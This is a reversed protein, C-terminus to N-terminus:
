GDQSQGCRGSGVRSPALLPILAVGREEPVAPVRLLVDEGRVFGGSEVEMWGAPTSARRPRSDLFCCVQQFNVADLFQFVFM